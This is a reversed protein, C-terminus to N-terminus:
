KLCRSCSRRRLRRRSRRHRLSMRKKGKKRSINKKNNRYKRSIPRRGGGLEASMDGLGVVDGEGEREGVGVVEGLWLARAEPWSLMTMPPTRLKKKIPIGKKDEEKTPVWFVASGRYEINVSCTPTSYGFISRIFNCATGLGSMVTDLVRRSPM